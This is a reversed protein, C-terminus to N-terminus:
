RQPLRVFVTMVRAHAPWRLRSGVQMTTQIFSQFYDAYLSHAGAALFAGPSCVTTASHVGGNDVVRSGDISLTSGDDSNTCFSYLGPATVPFLGEWTAAFLNRPTRPVRASFTDAGHTLPFDITSIFASGILPLPTVDPMTRFRGLSSTNYVKMLFGRRCETVGSAGAFSNTRPPCRTQEVTRTLRVYFRAPM